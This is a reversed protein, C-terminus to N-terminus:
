RTWSNPLWGFSTPTADIHITCSSAPVSHIPQLTRSDKSDTQVGSVLLTIFSLAWSAALAWPATDRLVLSAVLPYVKMGSMILYLQTSNHPQFGVNCTVLGFFAITMLVICLSQAKLVWPYKLNSSVKYNSISGETKYAWIMWLLCVAIFRLSITTAYFCGYLPSVKANQSIFGFDPLIVINFFTNAVATVFLTNSSYQMTVFEKYEDNRLEDNLIGNDNSVNPRVTM